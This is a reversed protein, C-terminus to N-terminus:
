EKYVAKVAILYNNHEKKGAAVSFLDPQQCFSAFCILFCIITAITRM